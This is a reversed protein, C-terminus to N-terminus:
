WFHQSNVALLMRLCAHIKRKGFMMMLHTDQQVGCQTIIDTANKHQNAYKNATATPPSRSPLQLTFQLSLKRICEFTVKLPLLAAYICFILEVSLIYMCVNLQKILGFVFGSSHAQWYLLVDGSGHSVAFEFQSALM